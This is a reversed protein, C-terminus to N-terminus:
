LDPMWKCKQVVYELFDLDDDESDSGDGISRSTKSASTAASSRSFGSSRSCDVGVVRCSMEM